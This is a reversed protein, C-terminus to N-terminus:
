KSLSFDPNFNRLEPIYALLYCGIAVATAWESVAVWKWWYPFPGATPNRTISLLAFTFIAIIGLTVAVMFCIRFRYTVKSLDPRDQFFYAVICMIWASACITVFAAIAAIYHVIPVEVFFCLTINENRIQAVICVQNSQFAAAGLVGLCFVESLVFAAVNAARLHRFRLLEDKGAAMEKVSASYSLYIFFFAVAFSCATITLFFTFICSSPPVEGLDSITLMFAEYGGVLVTIPYCVVTLVIFSVNGIVITWVAFGMGESEFYASHFKLNWEV